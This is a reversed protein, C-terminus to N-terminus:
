VNWSGGVKRLGVGSIGCFGGKYMIVAMNGGRKCNECYERIM